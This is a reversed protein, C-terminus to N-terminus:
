KEITKLTKTTSSAVNPSATSCRQSFPVLHMPILSALLTRPPSITLLSTPPQYGNFVHSVVAVVGDPKVTGKLESWFENTFLHTPVAGGSFCDHVVYDFRESESLKGTREQVWRRADELFVAHPKPFDFFEQAYKYVVPDIELVTTQIKHKTLAGAAIGTGLGSCIRIVDNLVRIM